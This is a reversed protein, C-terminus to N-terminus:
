VNDELREVIDKNEERRLQKIQKRKDWKEWYSKKSITGTNKFLKMTLSNQELDKYTSATRTSQFRSRYKEHDPVDEIDCPVWSLWTNLFIKARKDFKKQARHRREARNM